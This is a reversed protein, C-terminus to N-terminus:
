FESGEEEGSGVTKIEIGSKEEIRGGAEEV